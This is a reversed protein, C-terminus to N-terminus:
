FGVEKGTPTNIYSVELGEMNHSRNKLTGRWHFWTTDLVEGTLEKNNQITFYYKDLKKVLSHKM